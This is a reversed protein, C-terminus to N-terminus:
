CEHTPPLFEQLLQFPNQTWAILAEGKPVNSSVRRSRVHRHYIKTGIPVGDVDPEPSVGHCSRVASAEGFPLQGVLANM